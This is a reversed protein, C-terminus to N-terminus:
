SRKDSIDSTDSINNISNTNTDSISNTDSINSTNNTNTDSSDNISNTNNINNIISLKQKELEKRAQKEKELEQAILELEKDIKENEIRAREKSAKFIKEKRLSYLKHAENLESFDYGKSMNSRKIYLNLFINLDSDSITDDKLGKLLIEWMIDEKTKIKNNLELIEEKLEKVENDIVEGGMIDYKTNYFSHM